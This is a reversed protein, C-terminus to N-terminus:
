DELEVKAYFARGDKLVLLADEVVAGPVLDDSSGRPGRRWDHGGHGSGSLQRRCWDGHLQRREDDRRVRDCGDDDGADIWTFRSVLGAISGGDALDITLVGSASDFSAITGAPGDDFRSDSDHGIAPIALALLAVVGLLVAAFTTPRRHPYPKSTM